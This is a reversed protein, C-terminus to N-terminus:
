GKLFFNSRDVLWLEVISLEDVGKLKIWGSSAQVLWGVGTENVRQVGLMHVAHKTWGQWGIWRRRMMQDSIGRRLHHLRGVQTRADFAEVFHVPHGIYLTLSAIALAIEIGHRTELLVLQVGVSGIWGFSHWFWGCGILACFQVTM